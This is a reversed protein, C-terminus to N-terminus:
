TISRDVMSWEDETIDWIKRLIDDSKPNSYDELDPVFEFNQRTVHQSVVTQLLLFRLTKTFLYSRFNQAENESDFSGAVLWTETCCVGPELIRTNAEHYFKIAKSFDTQGAIPAFPVVVKWKNLINLNDKVDEPSAFAQGIKQTFFCPIGDTSPAYNTPLNFPKRPSVRNMLSQSEKTKEKIKRIFSIAKSDRILIDFENLFRTDKQYASGSKTTITCPGDYHKDWLFYTIGGAIDVGPFVEASNKFDVLEKIRRDNLMTRRFSDLGKGGAFWRAPIIMCLYNPNLKMAQEVFLQYIPAASRGFGGDGLQYPPNSIVVDFKMKKFQEPLQGHIFQYAHSELNESRDLNDKSAGCFKCRNGVWYHKGNEFLINGEDDAFKSTISYQGNATKSCYLSRRGIMATLNTIALGFVQNTLIHDVRDNLNPIQTELGKVLRLTIERLFVGSKCSPDFFTTNPNSWLEQPLCDLMSNAVNPPTFVEDSSLNALCSLVDPNYNVSIM